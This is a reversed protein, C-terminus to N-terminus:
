AAWDLDVRNAQLTGDPPSARGTTAGM